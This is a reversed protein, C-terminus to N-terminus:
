QCDEFEDADAPQNRCEHLTGDPNFLRRGGKYDGWLLGWAGCHSCEGEDDGFDYPDLVGGCWSWDSM